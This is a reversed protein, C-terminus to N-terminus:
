LSDWLTDLARLEDSNNPLEQNSLFTFQCYNGQDNLKEQLHITIEKGLQNLILKQGVKFPVNPTLLTHPQKINPLAPLILVRIYETQEGIKQLVKAGYPIGSPCLLELGLKPTAKPTNEVWRIAAISWRDNRSERLGVVEGPKLQAPVEKPWNICYGTASFNITNVAHHQYKTTDTELAEQELSRSQMTQEISELSVNINGVNAQYPSDWVDKTIHAHHDDKIFPNTKELGFTQSEKDGLLTEFSVKGSIFHHTASLGICINIPNDSPLRKSRRTQHQSWCRVLHSIFDRSLKLEGVSVMGLKDVYSLLTTLHAQLKSFDIYLPNTCDRSQDLYFPTEDKDLNVLMLGSPAHSLEILDSWCTFAQLMHKFHNQLLQNANCSALLLARKYAQEVTCNGFHPDEIEHDLIQEQEALQFFAHLRQWIENPAPQYLQFRRALNICYDTIARHTATALSQRQEENLGAKSTLLDVAIISNGTALHQHLTNALNAVRAPKEPLVFPQNLYHKALSRTTFYVPKRLTELIQLRTEAPMKIQNLEKTALFLQKAMDGLNAKHLRDVWQNTSQANLAFFQGQDLDQDPIKLLTQVDFDM